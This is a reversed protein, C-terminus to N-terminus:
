WHVIASRGGAAAERERQLERVERNRHHLLLECALPTM